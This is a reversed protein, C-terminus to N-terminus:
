GILLRQLGVLVVLFGESASVNGPPVSQVISGEEDEQKSPMQSTRPGALRPFVYLPCPQALSAPPLTNGRGSRLDLPAEQPSM